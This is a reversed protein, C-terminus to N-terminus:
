ELGLEVDRRKEAIYQDVSYDKLKERNRQLWADRRRLMEDVSVPTETGPEVTLVSGSATRIVTKKVITEM